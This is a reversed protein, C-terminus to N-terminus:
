HFVAHRKLALVKQTKAATLQGGQEKLDNGFCNLHADLIFMLEEMAMKSVSVDHHKMMFRIVHHAEKPLHRMVRKMRSAGAGAGGEQLPPGLSARAQGSHFSVISTNTGQNENSALYNPHPYGFYDSAMGGGQQGGHPPCKSVIYSRVERLHKPEVKRKGALLALVAAISCVNFLLGDVHDHLLTRVDKEPRRLTLDFAELFRDLITGLEQHHM